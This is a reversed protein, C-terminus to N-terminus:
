IIRRVEANLLASYKQNVNARSMAKKSHTMHGCKKMNAGTYVSKPQRDRCAVESIEKMGRIQVANHLRGEHGAPRSQFLSGRFTLLLTYSSFPFSVTTSTQTRTDVGNRCGNVTYVHALVMGAFCVRSHLCMKVLPYSAVHSM